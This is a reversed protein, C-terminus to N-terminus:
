ALTRPVLGHVEAGDRRIVGLTIVSGHPLWMRQAKRRRVFGVSARGGVLAGSWLGLHDDSAM